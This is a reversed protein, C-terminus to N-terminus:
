ALRPEGSTRRRRRLLVVAAAALVVLAAGGAAIGAVAVSSRGGGAATAPAAAVPRTLRWTQTDITRFVRGDHWGLTLQSGHLRMRLIDVAAPDTVPIGVCHAVGDVTDLAHVFGYGTPNSYLTYVWRGDPSAVRSSASGQMVWGQQTKDAIRGPLLRHTAMDYARVVYHLQDDRAFQIVYLRSADPSLADFAFQGKLVIRDRVLLRKADLVLFTTTAGLPAGAQALVLTRGDHSLGQGDTSPGYGVSATGWVGALTAWTVVHGGRTDIQEISTANGAPLAVYRMAGDPTVVGPDGVTAFLPGDARAAPAALLATVALAAGLKAFM